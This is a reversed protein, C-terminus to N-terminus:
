RFLKVVGMDAWAAGSRVEEFQEERKSEVATM